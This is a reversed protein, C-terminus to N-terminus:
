SRTKSIVSLHVYISLFLYENPVLYPLLREVDRGYDHVNNLTECRPIETLGLLLLAARCADRIESVFVIILRTLCARCLLSSFM